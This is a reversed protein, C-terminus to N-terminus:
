LPEGTELNSVITVFKHEGKHRRGLWKEDIGVMRLPSPERTPTIADRDARRVTHWSIGYKTAVHLLPMSFADLAVMQQFRRTQRQKPDAWPLLEVGRRDCCTCRVRKPVCELVVPHTGWPLDFWRRM